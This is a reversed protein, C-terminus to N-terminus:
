EGPRPHQDSPDLMPARARWGLEREARTTDYWQGCRVLYSERPEDGRARAPWRRLLRRRKPQAESLAQWDGILDGLRANAGGLVYRRAIQGAGLADVHAAAVDRVDVFNIPAESAVGLQLYARLDVGPGICLTPNLIVLQAGDAAYRYCEQEVQYKAEVFPDTSTGPLYIDEESALSAGSTRAITAASSTVVLRDVVVERSAEIVARIAKVSQSLVARPALATSPAAAYFVYSCGSMADVLSHYDLADGVVLEVGLGHLRSVDSDWRRLGRVAMGRALLEAVIHSGVLGTAGIM